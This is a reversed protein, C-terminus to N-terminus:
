VRLRGIEAEVTAPIISALWQVEKFAPCSTDSPCGPTKCHASFESCPVRLSDSSGAESEESIFCFPHVPLTESDEMDMTRHEDEKLKSKV